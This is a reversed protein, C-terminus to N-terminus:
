ILRVSAAHGPARAMRSDRTLLPAELLEALAVYVADYISLNDRLAWARPLLLAHDHRELPLASLDALAARARSASLLGHVALRRLVQAVEVDILHPAHLDEESSLLEASVSAGPPTQLVV